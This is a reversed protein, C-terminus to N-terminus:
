AARSGGPRRATGPWRRARRPGARRAGRGRDQRGRPQAHAAIEDSREALLAAARELVAGREDAPLAAWAPFAADPRPSRRACTASTPWRSTVPRARGTAPETVALAGAGGARWAGAVFLRVDLEASMARATSTSPRAPRTAPSGPPSSRRDRQRPGAPGAVEGLGTDNPSSTWATDSSWRTTSRRTRRLGPRGRLRDRRRARVPARDDQDDRGRGGQGRRLALLRSGRRALRRPERPQRDHRRRGARPVDPDGRPVADRARRPLDALM